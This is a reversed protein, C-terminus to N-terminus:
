WVRWGGFVSVLVIQKLSKMELKGQVVALDEDDSAVM